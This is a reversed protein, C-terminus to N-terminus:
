SVVADALEREAEESSGESARGSPSRSMTQTTGSPLDLAYAVAAFCVLLRVLGWGVFSVNDFGSSWEFGAVVYTCTVIWDVIAISLLWRRAAIDHRSPPIQRTRLYLALVLLLPGFLFVFDGSQGIALESLAGRAVDSTLQGTGFNGVIARQPHVLDYVVVGVGAILGITSTWGLLVSLPRRGARRMGDLRTALQDDSTPPLADLDAQRSDGRGARHSREVSGLLAAICVLVRATSWCALDVWEGSSAGANVQVTAIVFTPMLLLEVAAFGALLRAAATAGKREPVQRLVIVSLLLLIPTALASPDTSSASAVDQAAYKLVAWLGPGVSTGGLGPGSNRLSVALNVDHFATVLGIALGAAAALGLFVPARTTIPAVRTLLAGPEVESPGVAVIEAGRTPALFKRAGVLMAICAALRFITLVALFVITPLPWGFRTIFLSDFLVHGVLAMPTQVTVLVVLVFLWPGLRRATPSPMWPVSLLSIAMALLLPLVFINFLEFGEGGGGDMLAWAWSVRSFGGFGMFDLGGQVLDGVFLGTVAIGVLVVM